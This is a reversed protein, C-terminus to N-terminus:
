KIMEMAADISEPEQKKMREVFEQLERPTTPHFEKVDDDHIGYIIAFYMVIMMGDLSDIDTETFLTNVDDIPRLDQHAPKAFRAVKNLLDLFIM